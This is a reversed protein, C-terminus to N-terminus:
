HGSVSIGIKGGQEAELPVHRPFVLTFRTAGGQSEAFVSGGHIEMISKTISLGLGVNVTQGERRSADVRYFRDFIKQLQDRAIEPGPNTVRVEICDPSEGTEVGIAHGRSTFRLANSLVNSLARQFMLRDAVVTPADGGQVVRVNKESAAIDFYDVLKAVEERVDITEMRPAVLRNDAKALFLMDEIMSSLRRLEELNSQLYTCYEEVDRKQGLVVQAQLMMNNIPTRLEHAIDSSFDSLRQFSEELRSLMRNFSFILDRLDVPVDEVSLPKDLAASSIGSLVASVDRLPALGKRVALWGLLGIILTGAAVALWLVKTFSALFDRNDTIDFSISVLAPKSEPIGGLAIRDTAIRYTRGEASWTVPWPKGAELGGLLHRVVDPQGMALLTSGDAGVITLSSHPHGAMVTNHLQEQMTAISRISPVSGLMDRLAELKGALEIRDHWLFQSQVARTFLAAFVLLTVATTAAFLVSLRAAISIRVRKHWLDRLKIV